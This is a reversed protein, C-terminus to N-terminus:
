DRGPRMLFADNDSGAMSPVDPKGAAPSNAARSPRGPSLLAAALATAAAPLWGRSKM